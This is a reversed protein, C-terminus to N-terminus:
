LGNFYLLFHALGYVCVSSSSPAMEVDVHSPGGCGRFLTTPLGQPQEQPFVLAVIVIVSSISTSTRCWRRDEWKDESGKGERSWCRPYDHQQHSKRGDSTKKQTNQLDSAEHLFHVLRTPTNRLFRSSKQFLPFIAWKVPCEGREEPNSAIVDANIFHPGTKRRSSNQMQNQQQHELDRSTCKPMCSINYSRTPTYTFEVSSDELWRARTSKPRLVSWNKDFWFEVFGQEIMVSWM